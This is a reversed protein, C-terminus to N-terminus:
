RADDGFRAGAGRRHYPENGGGGHRYGGSGTHRGRRDAM